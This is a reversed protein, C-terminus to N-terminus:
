ACPMASRRGWPRAGGGCCHRCCCGGLGAGTTGANSKTLKMRVACSTGFGSVAFRVAVIGTSEAGEVEVEVVEEGRRGGGGGTAVGACGGGAGTTGANSKTLKMRVECSTGFGPVALGDAVVGVSAAEEVEVEVM